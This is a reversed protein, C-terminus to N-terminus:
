KLITTDVIFESKVERDSIQRLSIRITGIEEFLYLKNIDEPKMYITLLYNDGAPKLELVNVNQFITKVTENTMYPPKFFAAIDIWDGEEINGAIGNIQSVNLTIANYGNPFMTSFRDSDNEKYIQQEIIQQGEYINDKSTKGVINDENYINGNVIYEEPINIEKVDEQKIVSNAKINSNAVIVTSLEVNNVSEGQQLLKLDSFYLIIVSFLFTIALALIFSIKRAKNM